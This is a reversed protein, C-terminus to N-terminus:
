SVQLFTNPGFGQQDSRYLDMPVPVGFTGVVSVAAQVLSFGGPFAGIQFTPTGYASPSAVFVSQGGAVNMTTTFARSTGLPHSALALIFAATYGGGGPDAVPGFALRPAWTIAANGMRSPGGTENATLTFTVQANIASKSFTGNSTFANPTAIVNKAPTAESDTLVAAAPTRTYSATFGPTAVTAGLEVLTAGTLALSVAYAPAIMDATLNIFVPDGDGTPFPRTLVQNPATSFPLSFDANAIPVPSNPDVLANQGRAEYKRQIAANTVAQPNTAPILSGGADIFLQIPFSLLQDDIPRGARFLIMGMDPTNVYVDNQLFFIAM